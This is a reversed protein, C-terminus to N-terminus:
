TSYEYKYEIGVASTYASNSHFNPKAIIKWGEYYYEPYFTLSNYLRNAPSILVPVRTYALTATCRHRKFPIAM